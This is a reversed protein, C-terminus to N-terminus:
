QQKEATPWDIGEEELINVGFFRGIIWMLAYAAAVIALGILAATIKNRAEEYAAKDGGSTIWQIGGLILYVFTCIAAIIIAIEVGQTILTGISEIGGEPEVIQLTEEAALLPSAYVFLATGSAAIAKIIKKM